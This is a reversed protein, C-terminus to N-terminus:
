ETIMIKGDETMMYNGNEDTIAKKLIKELNNLKNLSDMKKEYYNLLQDKLNQKKLGEIFLKDHKISNSLKSREKEINKLTSVRYKEFKVISDRFLKNQYQLLVNEYKLTENKINFIESTLTMYITFGAVSFSIFFKWFGSKRIWHKKLEKIEIELKEKELDATSKKEKM